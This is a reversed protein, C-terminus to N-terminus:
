KRAGPTTGRAFQRARSPRQCTLSPNTGPRIGGGIPECLRQPRAHCSLPQCLPQPSPQTSPPPCTISGEFTDISMGDACHIASPCRIARTGQRHRARPRIGLRPLGRGPPCDHHRPRCVNHHTHAPPSSSHSIEPARRASSPAHGDIARRQGQVRSQVPVQLVRTRSWTAETRLVWGRCRDCWIAGVTEPTSLITRPPAQSCHTPTCHPQPSSHPLIRPLCMRQCHQETPQAPTNVSQSAPECLVPACRAALASTWTPWWSLALDSRFQIAEAARERDHAGDLPRGSGRGTRDDLVRAHLTAQLTAQERHNERGRCDFLEPSGGTWGAATRQAGQPM